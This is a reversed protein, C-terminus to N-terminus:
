LFVRWSGSLNLFSPLHTLAQLYFLYFNFKPFLWAGRGGGQYMTTTTTLNSLEVRAVGHVTAKSVRRKMLNELCSCQLPNGNGKGPCRGSGPISGMDRAQCSEKGSLWWLSGHSVHHLKPFEVKIISTIWSHDGWLWTTAAEVRHRKILIVRHSSILLYKCVQYCENFQYKIGNKLIYINGILIVM